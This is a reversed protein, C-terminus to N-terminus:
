SNTNPVNPRRITHRANCPNCGRMQNDFTADVQHGDHRNTCTTSNHESSSDRVQSLGHTWCYTYMKNGVAFTYKSNSVSPAAAPAPNQALNASSYGAQLSTTEKNAAVWAKYSRNMETKFRTLTQDATTLDEFRKLTSVFAQTNRVNTVLARLIYNDSLADTAPPFQKARSAQLWLTEIPM